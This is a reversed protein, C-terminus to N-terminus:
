RLYLWLALAVLAALAIRRLWERRRHAPSSEEERARTEALRRIEPGLVRLQLLLSELRVLGDDYEPREPTPETPAISISEDLGGAGLAQTQPSTGASGGPADQAVRGPHEASSLRDLWDALARAEREESRHPLMREDSPLMPRRPSALAAELLRAARLVHVSLAVGSTGYLRACEAASRGDLVRYGLLQSSRPPLRSLADVLAAASPAHENAEPQPSAQM